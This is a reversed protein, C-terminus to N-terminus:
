KLLKKVNKQLEQVENSPVLVLTVRINSKPTTPYLVCVMEEGSQNQVEGLEKSTPFV